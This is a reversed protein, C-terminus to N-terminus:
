CLVPAAAPLGQGGGARVGGLGRRSVRLRRQMEARGALLKGPRWSQPTPGAAASWDCSTHLYPAPWFPLVKRTDQDPFQQILGRDQKEEM